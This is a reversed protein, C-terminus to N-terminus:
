ILPFVAALYCVVCIVITTTFQEAAPTARSSTNKGPFFPPLVPEVALAEQAFTHVIYVFVVAVLLAMIM